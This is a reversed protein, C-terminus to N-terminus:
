CLLDFVIEDNMTVTAHISRGLIQGSNAAAAAEKCGGGNDSALFDGVVIAVTSCTVKAKAYGPAKKIKIYEGDLKTEGAVGYVLGSDNADSKKVVPVIDGTSAATLLLVVDNEAIAGSCKCTVYYEGPLQSTEGQPWLDTPM